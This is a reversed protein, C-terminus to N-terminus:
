FFFFKVISYHFPLMGPAYAVRATGWRRGGRKREWGDLCATPRNCSRRVERTVHVIVKHPLSPDRRRTAAEPTKWLHSPKEAGQPMHTKRHPPMPAQVNSEDAGRQM